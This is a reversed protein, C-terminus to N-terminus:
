TTRQVSFIEQGYRKRGTICFYYWNFALIGRTRRAFFMPLEPPKSEEASQQWVGRCIFPFYRGRLMIPLFFNGGSVIAYKTRSFSLVRWIRQFLADPIRGRPVHRRCCPFAGAEPSGASLARPSIRRCNTKTSSSSVPNLANSKGM